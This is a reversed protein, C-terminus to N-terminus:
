IDTTIECWPIQCQQVKISSRTVRGKQKGKKSISIQMGTVASSSVPVLADQPVKEAAATVWPHKIRLAGRQQMKATM